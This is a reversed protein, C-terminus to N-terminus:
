AVREGARLRRAPVKLRAVSVYTALAILAADIAVGTPWLPPATSEPERLLDRRRLREGTEPDIPRGRQDYVIPPRRADRVGRRIGELPDLEYREGSQPAADALVVVPNPALITWRWGIDREFFGEPATAVAIGFLIPTGITLLFVLAYAAMVSLTPRRIVASAALGVLVLLAAVLLLIAYVILARGLEVGGHGAAWLALPLSALVFAAATIWGALFKAGVIHMPRYLTSQLVALTGRDREGNISTATLAPVILCSLGLILLVLTGFMGQGIAESPFPPPEFFHGERSIATESYDRARMMAARILAILGTLIFMWLALLIWWRKGRIRQRLESVVLANM